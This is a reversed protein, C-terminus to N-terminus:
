LHATRPVLCRSTCLTLTCAKLMPNQTTHNPYLNCTIPDAYALRAQAVCKGLYDWVLAIGAPGRGTYAMLADVLQQGGAVEPLAGPAMTLDWLLGVVRPGM